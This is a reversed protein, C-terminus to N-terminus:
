LSYESNPQFIEVFKSKTDLLHWRAIRGRPRATCTIVFSFQGSTNAALMPAIEAM